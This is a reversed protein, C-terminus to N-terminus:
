EKTTSNSSSSFFFRPQPQKSCPSGLASQFSTDSFFEAKAAPSSPFVISNLSFPPNWISRANRLLLLSAIGYQYWIIVDYCWPESKYGLCCAPKNKNNLLLCSTKLDEYVCMIMELATISVSQSVSQQMKKM